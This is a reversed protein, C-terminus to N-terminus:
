VKKWAVKGLYGERAKKKGEAKSEKSKTSLVKGKKTHCIVM